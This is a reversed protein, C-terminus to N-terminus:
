PLILSRTMGDHVTGNAQLIDRARAQGLKAYRGVDTAQYEIARCERVDMFAMIDEVGVQKLHCSDQLKPSLV